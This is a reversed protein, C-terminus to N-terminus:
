ISYFITHNHTQNKELLRGLTESNRQHSENRAQHHQIAQQLPLLPDNPKAYKISRVAKKRAKILELLYAPVTKRQHERTTMTTAANTADKIAQETLIYDNENADTLNKPTLDLNYHKQLKLTRFYFTKTPM